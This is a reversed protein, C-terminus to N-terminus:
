TNSPNVKNKSGENTSKNGSVWSTQIKERNQKLRHKQRTGPRLFVSLTESITLMYFGKNESSTQRM